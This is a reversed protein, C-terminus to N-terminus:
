KSLEYARKTCRRCADKVTDELKGEYLADLGALTTGGPSSVQKILTDVDYGSDTLMAASGILSQAFLRKAAEESIGVEKAYDLFGKAFLYIFAPSSGNIAIVEAMKNLPLVATVGCLAFLQEVFAFEEDTVADIRSLATAGKGLLLPTNPMVQIVKANPKTQSRIYDPTMGAAISVIVTDETIGDALKPLTAEFQQPKIALFVYKCQKVIEAESTCATVGIEALAATKESMHDYAYLAVQESLKSGAIGRMIASGMNGAGLFGIKVQEM